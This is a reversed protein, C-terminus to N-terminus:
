NKKAFKPFQLLPHVSCKFSLAEPLNKDIKQQNLLNNVKQETVSRDTMFSSVNQLLSSNHYDHDTVINASTSAIDSLVESTSSVYTEARGDTVECLGEM